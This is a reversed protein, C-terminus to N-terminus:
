PGDIIDYVASILKISRPDGVLYPSMRGMVYALSLHRVPDIVVASGGFGSHGLAMPEPGYHGNINRMVGAAWSLHFPLVLDSGAIRERSFETRATDSIIKKGDASLGENALPHVIKALGKATAYMNSAPVEAAMLDERAVKGPSSWPKLFALKTFENIEGLDPAKPPKIMAVTRAIQASALGCYVDVGERAILEGVTKGTARRLIEGALFGYTQTHYGHHAGPQWIPKMQALRSCIADWDLWTQPEMPESIGVLGAQHSMVQGITIADKGNEAFEPWITAVPMEYNILEDSVARAMLYACVAKGSSFVCALSDEQWFNSKKKDAYGGYIDIICEGGQFVAFGFGMEDDGDLIERFCDHVAGFGATSNDTIM